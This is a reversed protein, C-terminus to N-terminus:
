KLLSKIEASMRDRRLLIAAIEDEELWSKLVMDLQPRTLKEM